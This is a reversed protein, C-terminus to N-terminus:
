AMVRSFFAPTSIAAESGNSSHMAFIFRTISSISFIKPRFFYRSVGAITEPGEKRHVHTARLGGRGRSHRPAAIGARVPSGPLYVAAGQDGRTAARMEGAKSAM